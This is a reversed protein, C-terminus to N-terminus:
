DLAAALLVKGVFRPDVSHPELGGLEDALEAYWTRVLDAILGPEVALAESELRAAVATTARELTEADPALGVELARRLEDTTLPAPDLPRAPELLLRVLATRVHDDLGPRPEPSEAVAVLDVGLSGAVAIRAALRHLCDAVQAVDRLSEFPRVADSDRQDTVQAGGEDLARPFFPRPGLVAELCSAAPEGATAARPLLRRALRALRLTVTYGVRHLRTLSITRLARGAADADGRSVSELGLALTSTAHETGVLVGREDGPRVRAAALVKNVLVILAAELRELEDADDITGLARALFARGVVRELMPVPLRGPARSAELDGGFRDASDEGIEVSELDLPRFVELADYFDAYGLDALRGTRWRYSMEELESPLESRAAMLTHRALQMDARYLDDILRTVLRVDDEDDSTLEIVFFRDPTEFGPAESEEPPEEGLSLDYIRASRAIVLAALEPDLHAFVQGLKEYGAELLAALWPLVAQEQVRDRDWIELDLCGQVQEPTALAVLEYSDSLGVEAILFYLEPVSLSAVAAGPDPVSLLADVRRSARGRALRARFRSLPIAKEGNDM